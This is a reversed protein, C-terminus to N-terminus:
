LFAGRKLPTQRARALELRQLLIMKALQLCVIVGPLGPKSRFGLPDPLAEPLPVVTSIARQLQRIVIEIGLPGQCPEEFQADEVLAQDVWLALDEDSRRLREAPRDCRGLSRM